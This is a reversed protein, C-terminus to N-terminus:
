HTLIQNKKDGIEGFRKRRGWNSKGDNADGAGGGKKPVNSRNYISVSNFIQRDSRQGNVFGDIWVAAMLVLLRVMAPSDCIVLSEANM